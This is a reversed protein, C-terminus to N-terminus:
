NKHEEGGNSGVGEALLTHWVASPRPLPIEVVEYIPAAFYVGQPTARVCHHGEWRGLKQVFQVKVVEYDSLLGLPLPKYL